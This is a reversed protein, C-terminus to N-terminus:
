SIYYRKQPSNIEDGQREEIVYAGRDTALFITNDNNYSSTEETIHIDNILLPKSYFDDYTYDAGSWVTTPTYVAHLKPKILDWFLYNTSAAVTRLSIDHLISSQPAADANGYLMYLVSTGPTYLDVLVSADPYWSQIYYNLNRGNVDLFRLDAGGESSLNFPFDFQIEVKVQRDIITSPSFELRDYYQWRRLEGGIGNDSEDIGYFLHNEAYYLTGSTTQYCKHIGTATSHIGSAVTMDYRDVGSVTTICLYKDAGHLYTVDNSMISPRTLYPLASGSAVARYVGSTLTGMYVYSGNAWVATAANPLAIHNVLNSANGDYVDVGSSTTQYINAATAWINQYLPQPETTIFQVLFEGYNDGYGVQAGVSYIHPNPPKTCATCRYPKNYRVGYFSYTGNGISRYQSEKGTDTGIYTYSIYVNGLYGNFDFYSPGFSARNIAFNGKNVFIDTSTSGGSFNMVGDSTSSYAGPHYVNEIVVRDYNGSLSLADYPSNASLRVDTVSEGMGRWLVDKGSILYKNSTQYTGPYILVLTGNPETVTATHPHSYDYSYNSDVGVSVVNGTFKEGLIYIEKIENPYLIAM